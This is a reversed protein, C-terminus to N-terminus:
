TVTTIRQLQGSMSGEVQVETTLKKIHTIGEIESNRCGKKSLKCSKNKVTSYENMSFCTSVHTVHQNDLLLM